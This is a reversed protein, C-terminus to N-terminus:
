RFLKERENEERSSDQARQIHQKIKTIIPYRKHSKSMQVVELFNQWRCAIIDGVTQNVATICPSSNIWDIEMYEEPSIACDIYDLALQNFLQHSFLHALRFTQEINENRWFRAIIFKEVKKLNDQNKIESFLEYEWEQSIGRWLNHSFRIMLLIEEIIPEIDTVAWVENIKPSGQPKAVKVYDILFYPRSKVINLFAKRKYDFHDQCGVQQLYISEALNRDTILEFWTEAEYCGFHFMIESHNALYLERMVVTFGDKSIENFKTFQSPSIYLRDSSKYSRISKLLITLDNSVLYAGPVIAYYEILLKYKYQNRSRRLINKIACLEHSWNHKDDYALPYLM